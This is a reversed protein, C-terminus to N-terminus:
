SRRQQEFSETILREVTIIGSSVDDPRTAMHVHFGKKGRPSFCAWHHSRRVQQPPDFLYFRLDGWGRNEIMGRCVHYPSQYRGHYVQGERIWGREQWYPIERREVHESPGPRRLPRAFRALGSETRRGLVRVGM